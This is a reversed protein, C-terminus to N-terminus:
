NLLQSAKKQAKPPKWSREKVVRPFTRERRTSLKVMLAMDELNRLLEPIRGPSAGQLTMLKRMVLSRSDSFSLQNPWYGKQSKAMKIMRYLVLNYASLQYTGDSLGNEGASLAGAARRTDSAPLSCGKGPYRTDAMRGRLGGAIDLWM